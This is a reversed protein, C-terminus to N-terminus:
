MNLTSDKDLSLAMPAISCSKACKWYANLFQMEIRDMYRIYMQTKAM